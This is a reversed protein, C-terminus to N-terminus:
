NGDHASITLVVIVNYTNSEILGYNTAPNDPSWTFTMQYGDNYGTGTYCSGIGLVLDQDISSLTIPTAAPTGLNGGSNTITCPASVLTLITGTPVSGSSIRASIERDTAGPVISSVKVFLDSNSTSEVAAGATSATLTLTVPAYNTEILSFDSIQLTVNDGATWVQTRANITLLLSGVILIFILGTRNM